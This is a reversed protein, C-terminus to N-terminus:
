RKLQYCYALDVNRGLRTDYYAHSIKEVSLLHSTLIQIEKIHKDDDHSYIQYSCIARGGDHLLKEINNRAQLFDEYSSAYELINSLILIDYQKNISIPQFFDLYSFHIENDFFHIISDWSSFPKPYYQCDIHFM